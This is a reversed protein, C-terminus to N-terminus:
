DNNKVDKVEGLELMKIEQISALGRLDGYMGVTNNIVKEIQKEREAWIKQYAIKEKELGSKLNSFGEVIAEIRQKFEVGTLYTYIIEMKKDKGVAMAKEATIAELNKRLVMALATAMKIDCVWVGDRVDFGNVGEPLVASVIVALEAKVARQDDKLKAIWGETWNKTKKSEWIIQGCFRGSRDIVKQIIDAGNVGKPVPAIEDTPFEAKLMEELELELVEGQTQQSGQELKRKLEDNAKSVDSIKKELQAIKYKEAEAAKEGAEKEITKREEDLQRQIKLEFEKKDAELQIKERRIEIENQNAEQLKKDKEFLQEELLTKEDKKTKEDDLIKKQLKTVENKSFESGKAFAEKEIKQREAEIQKLKDLEFNKKEEDFKQKDVRLKLAEANAQSLKQEKEKLREELIKNEAENEKGAELRAKKWLEVKETNLRENVKQAVSIDVLKKSEEVALEKKKIEALKNEIESEKVKQEVALNSKVKEEIQRTLVADISISQGCGPCKIKQEEGSM